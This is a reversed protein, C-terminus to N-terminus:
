LLVLLLGALVAAAAVAGIVWPRWAPRRPGTWTAAAALAPALVLVLIRVVDPVADFWLPMGLLLGALVAWWEWGLRFVFAGLVLGLVPGVIAGSIQWGLNCALDDPDACAAGGLPSWITWFLAGVALAVVTALYSWAIRAGGVPADAVRLRIESM